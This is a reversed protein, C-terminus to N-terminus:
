AQAISQGCAAGGDIKVLLLGGLARTTKGRATIYLPKVGKPSLANIFVNRPMAVEGSRLCEFRYANYADWAEVRGTKVFKCRAIFREIAALMVIVPKPISIVKRSEALIEAQAKEDGMDAAWERAQEVSEVYKWPEEEFLNVDEGAMRDIAAEDDFFAVGPRQDWKDDPTHVFHHTKTLKQMQYYIQWRAYGAIKGKSPDFRELATAMGCLGAQLLDEWQCEDAYPVKSRAATRRRVVPTKEDTVGALQSVLIKVLPLNQKLLKDLLFRKRPGAPAAKFQDFLSQDWKGVEM